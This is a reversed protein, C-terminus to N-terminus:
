KVFRNSNGQIKTIRRNREREWDSVPYMKNWAQILNIESKSMRINYTDIMYLYTRSILGRTYAAPYAKRDRVKFECQGYDGKLTENTAMYRYNLRDVNIEGIAPVLNHLDAQMIRYTKSIKTCCKRGKYEKKYKRGKKDKAITFCQEDGNRWCTMQHGFNYAPFIHEAETRETRINPKGKKTIPVRPTYIDANPYIWNIKRKAIPNFRYEYRSKCYFTEKHDKYVKMYMNKKAKAFSENTNTAKASIDCASFTLAALLLFFLTPTNKM